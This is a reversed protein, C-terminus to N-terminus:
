SQWNMGSGRSGGQSQHKKSMEGQLDVKQDIEPKEYKM